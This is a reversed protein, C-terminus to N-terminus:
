AVRGQSGPLAAQSRLRPACADQRSKNEGGDCEFVAPLIGASGPQVGLRREWAASGPQAGMSGRTLTSSVSDTQFVSTMAALGVLSLTLTKGTACM